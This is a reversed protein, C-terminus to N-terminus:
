PVFGPIPECEPRSPDILREGVPCPHEGASYSDAQVVVIVDGAEKVLVQEPGLDDGCENIGLPIMYTQPLAISGPFFDRCITGEAIVLGNSMWDDDHGTIKCTMKSEILAGTVPDRNGQVGVIETITFSCKDIINKYTGPTINSERQEINFDVTVHEVPTEIDGSGVGFQQIWLEINNNLFGTGLAIAAVGVVALILIPQM